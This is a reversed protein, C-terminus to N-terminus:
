NLCYKLNTLACSFKFHGSIKCTMCSLLKVSTKRFEVVIRFMSMVNGIVHRSASVFKELSDIIFFCIKFLWAVHFSEIIM